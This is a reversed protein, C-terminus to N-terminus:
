AYAWQMVAEFDVAPLRRVRTDGGVAFWPLCGEMASHWCQITTVPQREFRRDIEGRISLVRAGRRPQGDIHMDGLFVAQVRFPQLGRRHTVDRDREGFADRDVGGTTMAQLGARLSEDAM